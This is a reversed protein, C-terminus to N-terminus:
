PQDTFYLVNKHLDTLTLRYCGPHHRMPVIYGADAQQLFLLEVHNKKHQHHHNFLSKIKRFDASFNSSSIALGSLSLLVVSSAVSFGIRNM